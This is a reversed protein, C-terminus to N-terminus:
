ICTNLSNNALHVMDRIKELALLADEQIEEDSLRLIRYHSLMLEYDRHRDARFKERSSHWRYGDVEVIIKGAQWVLDVIHRTHRVTEIAQNFYFLHTLEADRALLQALMIEGRSAANPQGQQPTLVAKTSTHQPQTKHTTSDYLPTTTNDPPPSLPKQHREANPEDDTNLSQQTNTEPYGETSLYLTSGTIRELDPHTALHSPLLLTISQAIKEAISELCSIAPALRKSSEDLYFIIRCDSASLINLLLKIEESATLRKLRPLHGNQCTSVANMLHQPPIHQYRKDNIHWHQMNILTNTKLYWHPWLSLLLEALQNAINNFIDKSFQLGKLECIIIQEAISFGSYGQEINLQVQRPNNAFLINISSSHHSTENIFAQLSDSM